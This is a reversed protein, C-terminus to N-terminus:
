EEKTDTFKCGLCEHGEMEKKLDQVAPVLSKMVDTIMQIDELAETLNKECSAM